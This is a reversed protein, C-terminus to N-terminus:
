TLLFVPPSVFKFLTYECSGTNSFLPKLSDRALRNQYNMARTVWFNKKLDNDLIGMAKMSATNKRPKRPKDEPSMFFM